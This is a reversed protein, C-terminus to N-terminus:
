TNVFYLVRMPFSFMSGEPVLFLSLHECCRDAWLAKQISSFRRCWTTTYIKAFHFGWRLDCGGRVSSRVKVLVNDLPLVSARVFSSGRTLTELPKSYTLWWEDNEEYDRGCTLRRNRWFPSCNLPWSSWLSDRSLVIQINSLNVPWFTLSKLFSAAGLCFLPSSWCVCGFSASSPFM